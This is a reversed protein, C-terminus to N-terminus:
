RPLKALEDNSWPGQRQRTAGRVQAVSEVTVADSTNGFERRVYTLVAALQENEMGLGLPPMLLSRGQQQPEMKGHLAIRILLGQAESVWRSGVLPPALGVLGGGDAQHCAACTVAYAARGQEFLAQAMKEAPASNRRQLHQDLAATLRPNNHDRISQTASASLVGPDFAGSNMRQLMLEAWAPKESLMRLATVRMNPPFDPFADMIVGAAEPTEFGNLAALLEVQRRRNGDDKLREAILPLAAPMGLGAFLDVLQQEDSRSDAPRGSRGAQLTAPQQGSGSRLMELAVPAAEPHGLRAALTVLPVTHPRSTWLREVARRMSDPVREVAAGTLGEAMGAVLLDTQTADPAAALLAAGMDLNRRLHDASREIQWESYVGQRYTYSRRPGQDATYRRGLRQTIQGAFIKSRWVEENRLFSLMSDTDTAKSEIVWWLLLPIHLDDADEERRLLEQVIPFAQGAPLRKATSALQSRVERNPETRALSALAQDLGAGVAEADGLLRTTWRRVHENPHQLGKSALAADFRGRLNLVWLAELAADGTEREFLARLSDDIAESRSALLLRARERHSRNPHSLRAMLEASTQQRLNVPASVVHGKPKLRYIRSMARDTTDAPNAYGLRGDYWDAIYISGDPGQEVDVPRFARDEAQVMLVSDETRFSSTNPLVRSAQVRNTLAMGVVIQGDLEPSIGGEYFVFAQPFRQSYGEHAMHQFFGFIFPNMAPGHKNWGKVYTAGQVYHVGRTTGYNTGSYARGYKDFDFSFTNGGGEAFIEFKRSRPDYRWIGQGLLKIGNVELNTTSGTAGYLWGDPGLHLSSALSHTDELQFGTLHVEPDGDPIDDQNRDPYFLLYPSHMVWVGDEALAISTAMNLGTLFDKQRDFRGDGNTDEHITIKDAGRFHRPPPPSVRDYEARMHQDYSTIMMGAPFPYQIYQVVWMRGRADFALDIAQRVEPEHAVLEMEWGPTVTMRRLSEQPSLLPIRETEKLKNGPTFNEIFKKVEPSFRETAPEQASAAAVFLFIGASRALHHCRTAISKM